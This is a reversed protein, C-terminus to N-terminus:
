LEALQLLVSVRNICPIDGVLLLVRRLLVRHYLETRRSHLHDLADLMIRLHKRNVDRDQVLNLRQLLLYIHLDALQRLVHLLLLVLQDLVRRSMTELEHV